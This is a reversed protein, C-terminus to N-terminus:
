RGFGHGRREHRPRPPVDVLSVTTNPAEHYCLNVADASDPSRTLTKKTEEKPEVVRRGAADLKWKPALLEAGIRERDARPLRSLNVLGVKAKEATQFWLESRKNPYDGPRGPLSGANIPVVRWPEGGDPARLLDVVGGGVGDDDVKIPIRRALFDFRGALEQALLKLRGAIKVTDWGNHREHHVSVPGVRAHIVTDDDGFRAVDCGIEPCTQKVPEPGVVCVKDWLAESWVGYTGLTPWQGLWRSQFVPGPRYWEGSGPPFELDGPQQDAPDIRDCGEELGERFQALGVASPYPLEAGALEAAINPHDAAAMRIVRWRGSRAEQYARSTTDTPNFICLWAHGLEGKFMSRTTEWFVPEVGVAEDFVFLMERDHRGQFSEGKQTSLGVAYHDPASRLEPMAPGAFGGRAGRQLRVEKWLVDCVHERTPATTIVSGPDRTDYWWNVLGAALFTKGVSHAAQVLVKYPPELLARAIEEQVGWWRVGLVNKAYGVPDLRYQTLPSRRPRSTVLLLEAEKLM